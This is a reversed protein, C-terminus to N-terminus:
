VHARGIEKALEQIFLAFIYDSKIANGNEDIFVVRDADGDFAIGLDAKEKKVKKCLEKINEEKLPNPGHAPFNGDLEFNLRILNIKNEIFSIEKSGVSNCADVVIKLKKIKDVQKELFFGYDECIELKILQGKNKIKLNKKIKKELKKIGKKYSLPIANKGVFKFGNFEKPNHSATVMIGAKFKYFASAFYFMPSSCLGIDYVDVGRLLLGQILADCLSSSSLRIDRGVVVKETKIVSPFVNGIKEALWENVETPYIGRVDYAKFASTGSKFIM